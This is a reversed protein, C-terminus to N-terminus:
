GKVQKGWSTCRFNSDYRDGRTIGSTKTANGNDTLLKKCGVNASAAGTECNCQDTWPVRSVADGTYRNSPM